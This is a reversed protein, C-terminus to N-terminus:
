SIGLLARIAALISDVMDEPTSDPRLRVYNRTSGWYRGKTSQEYISLSDDDPFAPREVILEQGRQRELDALERGFRSKRPLLINELRQGAEKYEKIFLPSVTVGFNPKASYNNQPGIIM